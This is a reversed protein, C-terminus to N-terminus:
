FPLGIQCLERCFIWPNFGKVGFVGELDVKDCGAVLLSDDLGNRHNVLILSGPFLRLLLELGSVQLLHTTTRQCHSPLLTLPPERKQESFVESGLDLYRFVDYLGDMKCM